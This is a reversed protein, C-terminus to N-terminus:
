PPKMADPDTDRQRSLGGPDNDVIMVLSGELGIDLGGCRSGLQSILVLWVRYPPKVADPDIDRQRSLSGPDNDVNM